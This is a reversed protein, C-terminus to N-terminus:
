PRIEELVIDTIRIQEGVGVLITREWPRYGDREIRLRRTGAAIALGAKPTNGVLQGDIYLQGWPTANIFLAGPAPTPAAVIPASPAPTRPPAAPRRTENRPAAVRAQTDPRSSSSSGLPAAPLAVVPTTPPPQSTQLLKAVVLGGGGLLAVALGATIWRRAPAPNDVLLVRQSARGPTPRRPPPAPAVLAPAADSASLASVFELVTPYRDAPRPALARQLADSIHGPLDPRVDALRPALGKRTAMTQPTAGAFPLAGALCEFITVALAYQDAAPAPHRAVGEEPAVYEPRRAASADAVAVHDLVRGIAFDTVLAWEQEDVLVNAPRVDGHVVGRRHAYQLASAVQEVIRLCAHLEFPGHERLIATLSRGEIFRMSYWLVSATAGFRYLPVIHPHDLSAAAAMERQFRDELGADKVPRRALVRLAVRRESEVERAVYVISRPGRGISAGIQFQQGLERRAAEDLEDRTSVDLTVGGPAYGCLVCTGTEASIEAVSCRPCIM